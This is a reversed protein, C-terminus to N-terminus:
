FLIKGVYYNLVKLKYYFPLYLFPTLKDKLKRNIFYHKVFNYKQFAIEDHFLDSPFIGLAINVKNLQELWKLLGILTKANISYDHEVFLGLYYDCEENLEFGYARIFRRSIAVNLVLQEHRRTATQGDKVYRIYMLPEPLKCFTGVKLIRSWLDYDESPVTDVDYRYGKIVSMPMM